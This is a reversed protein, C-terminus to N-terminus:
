PPLFYHGASLTSTTGLIKNEKKQELKLTSRTWVLAIAFFLFLYQYFSMQRERALTLQQEM